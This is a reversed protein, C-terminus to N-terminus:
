GGREREHEMKQTVHLLDSFPAGTGGEDEGEKEHEMKKTVHPLDSLAAGSGIEHEEGEKM